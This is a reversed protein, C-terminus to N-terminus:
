DPLMPSYDAPVFAFGAGEKRVHGIGPFPLHAGGVMWRNASLKAFWTKRAAVAAKPDLDSGAWVEPHAFQVTHVHLIDGAALFSQGRSQFLFAVQGPTHGSIDFATVGPLLAGPKFLRFAGTARYPAFSDRAMKAAGQVNPPAAATAKEDLWFNAEAEAAWVTANPFLPKGDATVLGCIHDGHMHTILITDVDEPKYGAARLNGPLLGLTPGFCQATGGDVLILHDGTNVLFANISTLGKRPGDDFARKLLPPLLDPKLGNLKTPDIVVYGDYLATVEFDGVAYRYFGPAQTKVQAPAALAAAFLLGCLSLPIVRLLSNRM